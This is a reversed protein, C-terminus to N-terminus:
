HKKFPIIYFYTLLSLLVLSFLMVTVRSIALEKANPKRNGM